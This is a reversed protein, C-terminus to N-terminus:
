HARSELGTTQAAPKPASTLLVVGALILMVALAKRMNMSEGLLLWGLVVATAPAIAFAIPKVRSIEGMSIAIYFCIIALAGAALGSGFVAKTWLGPTMRAMWTRPEAPSKMVYMMIAWALAIAPMAVLSRLFLLTMPGIAKAHLISRAAVEGVGWFLGAAIAFLIPKM